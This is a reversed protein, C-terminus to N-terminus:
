EEGRKELRVESGMNPVRAAATCYTLDYGLWLRDRSPTPARAHTHLTEQM